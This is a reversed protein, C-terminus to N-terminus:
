YGFRNIFHFLKWNNGPKRIVAVKIAPNVPEESLNVVKNAAAEISFHPMYQLIRLKYETQPIIIEDNIKVAYELPLGDQKQWISIVGVIKPNTLQKVINKM